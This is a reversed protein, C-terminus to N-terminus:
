LFAYNRMCNYLNSYNKNGCTITLKIAMLKSLERRVNM